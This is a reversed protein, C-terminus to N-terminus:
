YGLEKNGRQAAVRGCHLGESQRRLVTVAAVVKAGDARDIVNLGDFLPVNVRIYGRTLLGIVNASTPLRLDLVHASCLM